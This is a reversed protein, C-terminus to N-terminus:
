ENFHSVAKSYLTEVGEIVEADFPTVLEAQPMRASRYLEVIGHDTVTKPYIKFGAVGRIRVPKRWPKDEIFLPCFSPEPGVRNQEQKRWWRHWRHFSYVTQWYWRHLRKLKRFLEYDAPHYGWRSKLSDTHANM